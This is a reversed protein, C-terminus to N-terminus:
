LPCRRATSRLLDFDFSGSGVELYLSQSFPDRGNSLPCVLREHVTDLALHESGHEYSGTIRLVEVLKVEASDAVATTVFASM